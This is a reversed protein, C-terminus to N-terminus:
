VNLIFVYKKQMIWFHVKNNVVIDFKNNLYNEVYNKMKEIGLM